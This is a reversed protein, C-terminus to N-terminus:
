RNKCMNDYIAQCASHAPRIINYCEMYTARLPQFLYVWDEWYNSRQM